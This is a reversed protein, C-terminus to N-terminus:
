DKLFICKRVLIFRFNSSYRITFNFIALYGNNNNLSLANNVVVSISYLFSCKQYSDGMYVHALLQRVKVDPLSIEQFCGAHCPSYYTVGDVGCIPNFNSTSCGCGTNCTGDLSLPKRSITDSTQAFNIRWPTIGTNFINIKFCKRLNFIIIRKCLKSM